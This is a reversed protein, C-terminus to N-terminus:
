GQNMEVFAGEEVLVKVVKGPMPARLEIAGTHGQHTSRRLANRADIIEAKLRRGSVSVAYTEGNPNLLIEISRNNWQFWLVGPEVELAEIVYKEGGVNAEITRPGSRTLEIELYEGDLIATYKM